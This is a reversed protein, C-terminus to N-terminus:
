SRFNSWIQGITFQGLGSNSHPWIAKISWIWNIVVTLKSNILSNVRIRGKKVQLKM